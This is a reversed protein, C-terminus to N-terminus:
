NAVLETTASHMSAQHHVHLCFASGEGGGFLAGVQRLASRHEFAARTLDLLNVFPGLDCMRKLRFSTGHRRECFPSQKNCPTRTVRVYAYGHVCKRASRHLPWALVQLADDLHADDPLSSM